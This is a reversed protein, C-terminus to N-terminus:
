SPTEGGTNLVASLSGLVEAIDREVVPLLTHALGVNKNKCATEVDKASNQLTDAGMTGAAGKLTHACRRAGEIDGSVVFTRFQGSFERLVETYAGALEIYLGTDHGLRVLALEIDLGPLRAPLKPPPFNDTV